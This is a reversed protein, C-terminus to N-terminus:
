APRRFIHPPPRWFHRFRCFPRVDWFSRAPPLFCFIRFVPLFRFFRIIIFFLRLFIRAASPKLLKPSLIRFFLINDPCSLGKLKEGGVPIGEFFYHLANPMEFFAFVPLLLTSSIYRRGGIEKEVSPKLVHGLAFDFFVFRTIVKIFIKFPSEAIINSLRLLFLCGHRTNRKAGQLGRNQEFFGNTFM